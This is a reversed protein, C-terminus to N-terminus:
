GRWGPSRKELFAGLGEKAEPTVRLAAIRKATDDIVDDSIPLGALDRVLAKTAKVAAPGGTLLEAIIAEAAQDLADAATVEHVLGLRQAEMADFREGTLMIRRSARAGVARIVYPGIVSPMIGLKVETTGFRAHDAAVVIDCCCVLGVGGGLAAGNVKAITPKPLRDLTSMLKALARADKLNEDEGYDACRRMWNLDAGASFSKGRGTLLLARVQDDAGLAELALTLEAILRDDFANHIEPRDLTVVAVGDTRHDLTFPRDRTMDIESAPNFPPM